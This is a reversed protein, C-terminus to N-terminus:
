KRLLFRYVRKLTKVSTTVPPYRFRLDPWLPRQLVSRYHTFGDFGAKGHYQGMGSEGVGGFPLAKGMIHSMTDNICVGGSATERLVKEQFARGTTFLYLALPKPRARVAAIAEELTSFPLVPMIPGFIEEQMVPASLDVDALITPAIFLDEPDTRGGCVVRGQYLYAVLRDFHGANVIRGYDPSQQPEEGFFARLVRKFAEFLGEMVRQDVLVYDPAVCTQGANMCKGWLIRRAATDLDADHAVICPNKGGLELTVPTLRQAATEMVRRGVDASGTFFLYDFDQHVLERALDPGGEVVTVYNAPFTEAIMDRIVAATAPALESPKLCVCNGAAVAGVLPSLLLQLPYNWPGIILVAGYPEPYVVGRSPWAILPTPKRAPPMWRKLHRLAYRIDSQVFGIESAYAEQPPKRLDAYLADLIAQEFVTLGRELAILQERRFAFPRTAGSAYFRRLADLVVDPSRPKPDESNRATELDGVEANHVGAVSDWM